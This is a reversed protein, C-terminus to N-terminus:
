FTASLGAVFSRIEGLNRELQTYNCNLANDAGLTLDLHGLRYQFRLSVEHQAVREDFEYIEM